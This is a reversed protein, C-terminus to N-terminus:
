NPASVLTAPQNSGSANARSFDRLAISLCIAQLNEILEALRRSPIVFFAYLEL